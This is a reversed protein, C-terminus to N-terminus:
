GRLGSAAAIQLALVFTMAALCYLHDALVLRALRSREAAPEDGRGIRRANRVIRAAALGIASAAAALSAWGIWTRGGGLAIQAILAALTALMVVSVLAGMPRAETTVRRYYAGISALVDDPLDGAHGAAQVDFMLDFWLVAILFAAGAAAIAHAAAIV